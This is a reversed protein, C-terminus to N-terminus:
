NLYKKFNLWAFSLNSLTLSDIPEEINKVNDIEFIKLQNEDFYENTIVYDYLSKLPTTYNVYDFNQYVMSDEPNINPDFDLCLSNLLQYTKDMYKDDINKNIVILDLAVLTDSPQVVHLDTPAKDTGLDGGFSAYIADGNFLFAGKISDGEAIQNLVANSDSNFTISNSGVKKLKEALIKYTTTLDDVSAKNPPNISEGNTEISRPISYITRRDDLCILSHENAKFRPEEGIADLVETWSANNALKEIKEGRYAFVLSQLFYPVGYNLLNDEDEGLIENNNLDYSTLIKQVPETFLNLADKASKIGEIGFMSWDLKKLLGEQSWEVLAYSTTNVLDASNQKLLDKSSEVNDFADFSINYEKSLEKQVDPNMYSQYNALVFDRKNISLSTAILSVPIAIILLVLLIIWYKKTKENYIKKLITKVQLKVM